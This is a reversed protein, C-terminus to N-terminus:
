CNNEGFPNEGFDGYLTLSRLYCAAGTDVNGNYAFATIDVTTTDLILNVTGEGPPVTQALGLPVYSGNYHFARQFGAGGPNSTVAIVTRLSNAPSVARQLLLVSPSPHYLWGEGAVYTGYTDVTFGGDDITFDFHYCWQCDCAECDGTDAYEVTANSMLVEGFLNVVNVLTNYVVGPHQALIAAMIADRKEIDIQGDAGIHCYIICEISEWVGETFAAEIEVQGIDILADFLLFGIGAILAAVPTLVLLLTMIGTAFQAANVSSNFIILADQFAHVIRAAGDCKPDPADTPPLRFADNHRPDSGPDPNWTTGGDPSTELEGTDPNIRSSAPMIELPTLWKRIIAM